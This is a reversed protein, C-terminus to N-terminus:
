GNSLLVCAGYPPLTITQNEIEIGETQLVVERDHMVEEGDFIDEKSSFNCVILAKKNEFERKYVYLHDKTNLM